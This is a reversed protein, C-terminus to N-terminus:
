RAIRLAQRATASRDWPLVPVLAALDPDPRGPPGPVLALPRCGAARVTRLFEAWEVAPAPRPSWPGGCGLDTAILVPTAPAPPRYPGWPRLGPGAGRTPCAAFRLVQVNPGLVAAFQDPLAALDAFWPQMAPATDLLIQVGNRHAPVTRRPIDALPLGNALAAVVASVDIDASAAPVATAAAIVARMRRSDLLPPAGPGAADEAPRGPPEGGDPLAHEAGGDLGALWDPIGDALPDPPAGTAGPRHRPLVIARRMDEDAMAEIQQRPLGHEAALAHVAREAASVLDDLIAPGAPDAIIDTLARTFLSFRMHGATVVQALDGPPVAHVYALGPMGSGSRWTGHIRTLFDGPQGSRDPGPLGYPKPLNRCADVLVVLHEARDRGFYQNVDIPIPIDGSGGLGAEAAADSPLLYDTGNRHVGHGALYLLLTQGPEGAKIFAGIAQGIGARGTRTWYLVDVAYGTERLAAALGVIDSAVHPLDPIAEDDYHAVGVLLARFVGPPAQGTRPGTLPLWTSPDVARTEATADNPSSREPGASPRRPPPLRPFPGIAPLPLESPRVPPAPRHGAPAPAPTLGLLAAVAAGTVADHIELGVLARALDGDFIEGRGAAGPQATPGLTV